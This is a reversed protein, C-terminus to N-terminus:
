GAPSSSHSCRCWSRGPRSRWGPRLASWGWVDQQWVVLSLLMAGFATSFLLMAISAGTFPRLRFLSRDVLPNRRSRLTWPSCPRARDVAAALAAVTAAGGWGWDEGKVLGLTLAAVGGTLLVAGLADPPPVPHGPIHPLRRWGVVLALLGIPVNVLFM